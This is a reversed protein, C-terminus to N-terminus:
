KENIIHPTEKKKKVTADGQINALIVDGTECYTRSYSMMDAKIM